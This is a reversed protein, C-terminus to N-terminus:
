LPAIMTAKFGAGAFGSAGSDQFGLLEVYDTAAMHFVTLVTLGTWFTDGQAKEVLRNTGNMLITLRRVGDPDAILFSAFGTLLYIGATTATLRSPNVSNSHMGDTDYVEDTFSFATEINSTLSEFTSGADVQPLLDSFEVLLGSAGCSAINDADSDFIPDLEYPTAVTGDGTVDICDTPILDCSCGLVGPDSCGCRM